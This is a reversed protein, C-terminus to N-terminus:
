KGKISWLEGNWKGSNWYNESEKEIGFKEMLEYLTPRSLWSKL